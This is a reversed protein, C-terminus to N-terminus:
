LEPPKIWQSLHLLVKEQGAIFRVDEERQSLPTAPFPKKLLNEGEKQLRDVEGIIFAGLKKRLIDDYDKRNILLFVAFAILGFLCISLALLINTYLEANQPTKM